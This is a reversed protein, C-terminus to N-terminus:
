TNPYAPPHTPSPCSFPSSKAHSTLHRFSIMVAPVKFLMWLRSQHDIVPTRHLRPLTRVPQERCCASYQLVFLWGAVRADAQRSEAANESKEQAWATKKDRLFLSVQGQASASKRWDNIVPLTKNRALGTIFDGEEVPVIAGGVEDGCLTQATQLERGKAGPIVEEAVKM